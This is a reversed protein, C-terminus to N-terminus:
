LSLRGPRHHLPGQLKQPLHGDCAPKHGRRGAGGMGDAVVALLGKESTARADRIDSLCFSDQQEERKGINHLNGVVYPGQPAFSGSSLPPRVTVPPTKGSEGLGGGSGGHAPEVSRGASGKSRYRDFFLWLVAALLVVVILLPLFLKDKLSANGIEGKSGPDKGPDGPNGTPDEVPTKGPEDTVSGSPNGGLGPIMGGIPGGDAGPTSDTGEEGDAWASCVPLYVMLLVSMVLALAAKVSRKM